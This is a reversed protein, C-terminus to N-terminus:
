ASAGGRGRCARKMRAMEHAKVQSVARRGPAEGVFRADEDRGSRKKMQVSEVLKEHLAGELLECRAECDELLEESGRALVDLCVVEVLRM